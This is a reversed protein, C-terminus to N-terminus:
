RLASTSRGLRRIASANSEDQRRKVELLQPNNPIVVFRGSECRVLTGALSANEWLNFSIIDSEGLFPGTGYSPDFISRRYVFFYHNAFLSPPDGTGQGPVGPLEANPSFQRDSGECGPGLALGNIDWSNVLMFPVSSEDIPRPSTLASEIEFPRGEAIGQKLLVEFFLFSWASCTGMGDFFQDEGQRYSNLMEGVEFCRGEIDEIRPSAADIWYKMEAGDALNYGDLEKRRVGPLPGAFDSWIAAVVADPDSAGEANRCGIEFVSEFFPRPTQLPEGLTVYVRNESRGVQSWTQGGNVSSEWDIVLPNHFAVVQDLAQDMEVETIEAFDGSVTAETAPFAIGPPGTGRIQLSAVAVGAPEIAFKVTAKMKTDRKFSVPFRRDGEFGQDTPPDSADGDRPQSNDKWHPPSYPNGADDSVEQYSDGSFSVEELRLRAVVIDFDTEVEALTALCLFRVIGTTQGPSVAEVSTSCRPEGPCTANAVLAIDSDSSGWFYEGGAPPRGAAEALAGQLSTSSGELLVLPNPGQYEVSLGASQGRGSQQAACHWGAKTIGFGPDSAIETSDNSVTGTGISVFAGLDHDFSFMETVTGPALGDVNPFTVPAPPDFHAGAPQITVIFRPQMGEPPAMPVKDSHVATASVVGTASGDPFTVSGPAVRLSFGPAEPIEVVVEEAGGATSGGATDLPLVFIPRAMRNDIGALLFVEFELGPWTGARTATSGDAVLLQHGVPIGELEFEGGEGSTAELPSGRLGLTYGPVPVGANDLVVGSLSTSAPSGELFVGAQFVVPLQLQDAFTAEVQHARLGVASGLTLDAAAYGRADTLILQSAGGGLSGGGETVEFLVEAGAVPNQGADTVVVRLPRALAQGPAGQQGDGSAIHIRGPAGAAATAAFSVSGVGAVTAEVRNVGFGARTGLMWDVSTQGSGDTDVLVRRRGGFLHGNGRSVEFAVATGARPSGEGDVLKVVLPLALSSLIPASQLDGSVKILRGNAPSTQYFIELAEVRSNGANDVAEVTLLNPGPLLPVDEARFSRHGVTAPQGNVTVSVRDGTTTGLGPDHVMGSVTVSPEFHVSGEPPYELSLRPSTADVLVEVTDYGVNGSADRAVANLVNAGEHLPLAPLSFSGGDVTAAFGNVTVATTGAAVTGVVDVLTGAPVLSGEVPQTIAVEVSFQAALSFLTSAGTGVLDAALVELRHTGRSLGTVPCSFVGAAASCDASVDLSDLLVQVSSFDVGTDDDEVSFRLVPDATTLIEGKTPEVLIVTPPTIDAPAVPYRLVERAENGAADKVRAVLADVGPKGLPFLCTAQTGGVSCLSTQDNGNVEVRLTGLDLGLGVDEYSLSVQLDGGSRPHAPATALSLTPPQDDFFLQFDFTASAPNGGYDQLAIQIQHSGAALVPTECFGVDPGSVCEVTFLGDVTVAVSSPDVGALDDEFYLNFVPTEDNYVVDLDPGTADWFVISVTPAVTDVAVEFNWSGSGRNGASDWISARIEHTGLSLPGSPCSAVDPGVTCQPLLDAGDLELRFSAPEIGSDLDFYGVELQPSDENYVASRAPALLFIEPEEGDAAGFEAGSWGFYSGREFDDSFIPMLGEPGSQAALFSSFFLFLIGLAAQRARYLSGCRTTKRELSAMDLNM